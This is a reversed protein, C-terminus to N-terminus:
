IFDETGDINIKLWAAQVYQVESSKEQVTRQANTRSLSNERTDEWAKQQKEENFDM